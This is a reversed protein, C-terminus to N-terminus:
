VLAVHRSTARVQGSWKRHVGEIKLFTFGNICTEDINWDEDFWYLYVYM